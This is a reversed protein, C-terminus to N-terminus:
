NARRRPLMWMEQGESRREPSKEYDEDIKASTIHVVEILCLVSVAETESPVDPRGVLDLRGEIHYRKTAHISRQLTHVRNHAGLEVRQDATTRAFGDQIRV